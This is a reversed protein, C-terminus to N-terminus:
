TLRFSTGKCLGHSSPCYANCKMINGNAVTVDLTTTRKVNEKIGEIVLEDIFNHMSENDILIVLDRGYYSRKIRITNHAYSEELANLSFGNKKLIIKKLMKEMISENKLKWLYKRMKMMEKLRIYVRKTVNTSLVTNKVM